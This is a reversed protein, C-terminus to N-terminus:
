LVSPQPQPEVMVTVGPPMGAAFTKSARLTVIRADDTYILGSLADLVHRVLKDLDPKKAPLLVRKPATAPRELRFDLTVFLPGDLPAPSGHERLWERASSAVAERWAVSLHKKAGKNSVDTVIARGNVVFATKSGKPVPVGCVDFGIAVENV